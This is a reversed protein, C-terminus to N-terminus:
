SQNCLQEDTWLYALPHEQIPVMLPALIEVAGHYYVREETPLAHGQSSLRAVSCLIYGAEDDAEIIFNPTYGDVTIKLDRHAPNSSLAKM